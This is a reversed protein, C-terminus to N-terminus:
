GFGQLQGELVQAQPAHRLRKFLGTPYQAVRNTHKELEAMNSQKNVTRGTNVGLQPPGVLVMGYHQVTTTTEPSIVFLTQM